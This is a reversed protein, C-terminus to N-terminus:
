SSGYYRPRLHKEQPLISIHVYLTDSLRVRYKPVPYHHSIPKHFLPSSVSRFDNALILRNAFAIELLRHHHIALSIDNTDKVEFEKILEKILEKRKNMLFVELKM